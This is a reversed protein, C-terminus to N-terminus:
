GGHWAAMCRLPNIRTASVYDGAKFLTNGEKRLRKSTAIRVEPTDASPETSPAAM